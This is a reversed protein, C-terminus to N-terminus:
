STNKKINVISTQLNKDKAKDIIWGSATYANGTGSFCYILLNNYM